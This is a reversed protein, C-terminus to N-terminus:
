SSLFLYRLNGLFPRSERNKHNNKDYRLEEIKIGSVSTNKIQPTLLLFETVRVPSLSQQRYLHHPVYIGPTGCIGTM